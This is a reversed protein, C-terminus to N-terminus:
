NYGKDGYPELKELWKQEMKKLRDKVSVATEEKQDLEELIEYSFNDEGFETWDKQLKKNMHLGASLTMKDRNKIANLNPSKNVFIKGNINNRMLYIGMPIETQKYEFIAQKKDVTKRM